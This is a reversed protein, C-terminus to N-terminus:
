KILNFKNTLKYEVFESNFFTKREIKNMKRLNYGHFCKHQSFSAKLYDVFWKRKISRSFFFLSIRLGFFLNFPITLNWLVFNLLNRYHYYEKLPNINNLRQNQHFALVNKNYLIKFENMKIHRIVPMEHFCIFYDPPFLNDIFLVRRLIFACGVFYEWICKEINNKPLWGGQFRILMNEIMNYINFSIAGLKQNNKLEKVSITISYKDPYCDDDLVLVYEGKAAKFGENWGAIGVNKNLKILQVEPFEKQVMEPSGDSSANDVVIIEINKYDQEYVKTLTVRLEDRRNYSLINVTVLPNDEM